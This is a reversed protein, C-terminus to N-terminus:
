SGDAFRGIWAVIVLAGNYALHSVLGPWLSETRARLVTWFLGMGAIIPLAIWDGAVQTAHVAAFWITVVGIAAFAPLRSRLAGYLVGRYYLEEVVPLALAIVTIAALGEQTASLQAMYSDGTSMLAHMVSAVAAGLLGGGLALGMVGGSPMVGLRLPGLVAGLRWFLVAALTLTTWGGDLLSTVVLPVPGLQPAEGYMGILVVGMALEFAWVLGIILLLEGLGIGRAEASASPISSSPDTSL